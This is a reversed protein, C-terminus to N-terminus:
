SVTENIIYWNSPMKIEVNGCIVLLDIVVEKDFDALRLNLDVNGLMCNVDAYKLTKSYVVNKQNGLYANTHIIDEQYQQQYTNDQQTQEQHQPGYEYTLGPSSE